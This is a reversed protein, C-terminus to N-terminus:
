QVALSNQSAQKAENMKIPKIKTKPKCFIQASIIGLVEISRGRGVCGTEIKLM